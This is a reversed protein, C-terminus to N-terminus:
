SQYKFSTRTVCDTEIGRCSVCTHSAEVYVALELPSLIKCLYEGIERTYREQLQPKRSFYYVVRPIKSLGIITKNPIYSVSVEGMFPLWHHECISQFPISSVVIPTRLDGELPFVKMRSNLDEINSNGRNQFLEHVYMKAVRLPTNENSETKEFGLIESIAEVHKKIAEVKNDIM